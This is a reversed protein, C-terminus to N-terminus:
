KEYFRSPKHQEKEKPVENSLVTHSLVGDSETIRVVCGYHLSFAKFSEVLPTGTVSALISRIPGGHTILILPKAKEPLAETAHSRGDANPSGQVESRLQNFCRTVRENLDIYSEGEPIRVQVFDNMWPDLEEPPLSDWNKMEWRGCDIEKLEERFQIPHAPFLHAALKACRRLPSSYVAGIREPLHPRILAAEAHLSDTIDLDTQGYCIGKAVDPTTHRILYIDM